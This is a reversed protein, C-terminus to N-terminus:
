PSRRGAASIPRGPLPLPVKYESAGSGLLAKDELPGGFVRHCEYCAARASAVYLPVQDSEPMRALGEIKAGASKLHQAMQLWHGSPPLPPRQLANAMNRLNNGATYLQRQAKEGYSKKKPAPQDAAGNGPAQPERPKWGQDCLVRLAESGDEMLFRLHHRLDLPLSAYHEKFLESLSRGGATAAGTALLLIVAANQLVKSRM